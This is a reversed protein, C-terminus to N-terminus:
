HSMFWFIYLILCHISTIFFLMPQFKYKHRFLHIGAFSGIAGGVMVLLIFFRNPIRYRSQIAQNKDYGYCLFSSVNIVLIWSYIFSIDTKESFFAAGIISFIVVGTIIANNM